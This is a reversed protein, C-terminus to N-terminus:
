FSSKFPGRILIIIEKCWNFCLGLSLLCLLLVCLGGSYDLSLVALTFSFRSDAVALRSLRLSAM